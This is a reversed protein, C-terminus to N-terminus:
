RRVYFASICSVNCPREPKIVVRLRGFRVLYRRRHSPDRELTGGRLAHEADERTIKERGLEHLKNEIPWHVRCGRLSDM